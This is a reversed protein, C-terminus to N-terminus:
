GAPAAPPSAGISVLYGCVDKAESAALSAFPVLSTHITFAIANTAPLRRLTQREVRIFSPASPDYARPAREPRPQHLSPDNYALANARQVPRDPPLRDFLTEIRRDMEATIRGVPQHIASLPRGMKESLTWSAPFAIAAAALVHADGERVLIALDEQVLRAVAVLAPPQSADIAIGDPRILHAGEEGYAGSARVERLVLAFLERQAPHSSPTEAFVEGRHNAFLRDRLAMQPSFADDRVLWDGDAVPHLGPLRASLADDWPRAAFARQTIVPQEIM